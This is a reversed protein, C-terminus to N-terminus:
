THKAFVFFKAMKIGEGNPLFNFDLVYLTAPINNGPPNFYAAYGMLERDGHENVDFQFVGGGPRASNGTKFFFERQSALHAKTM